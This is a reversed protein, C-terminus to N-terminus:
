PLAKPESDNTQDQNKMSTALTELVQATRALFINRLNEASDASVDLDELSEIINVLMDAQAQARGIEQYYLRRAEATAREVRSNGLWQEELADLRQKEGQSNDFYGIDIWILEVGVNKLDNRAKRSFLNRKIEARPDKEEYNPATLEDFTHVAIYDGIAADIVMEVAKKWPTLGYSSVSRNYAMNYVAGVSFPYPNDVPRGAVAGERRGTILRYRYRVERVAVEIGDRTVSKIEKFEGTQDELSVIEKINEFRTMFHLGGSMVSSPGQLRELLVVTGPDVQVYGPGGIVDILNSEGEKVQKKGESIVLLPYEYGFLSSLLYKLGDEYKKLDYIDQVFRGGAMVAVTLAAVPVLAYRWARLIIFDIVDPAHIEAWPGISVYPVFMEFFYGLVMALGILALVGLLRVQAWGRDGILFGEFFAKIRWIPNISLLMRRWVRKRKMEPAEKGAPDM